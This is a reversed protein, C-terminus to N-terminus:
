PKKGEKIQKLVQNVKEQKYPEPIMQENDLMIYKLSSLFFKYQEKIEPRNPDSWSGEETNWNTYLASLKYDSVKKILTKIDYGQEDMIKKSDFTKIAKSIYWELKIKHKQLAEEVEVQNKQTPSLKYNYLIIKKAYEEIALIISFLAHGHSGLEGLFIADAALRDVNRQCMLIGEAIKDNPIM